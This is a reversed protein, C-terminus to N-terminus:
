VIEYKINNEKAYSEAYSGGEVKLVVNETDAFVAEEM